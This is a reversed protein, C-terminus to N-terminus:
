KNLKQVASDLSKKDLAKPDKKNYEVDTPLTFEDAAFTPSTNLVTAVALLDTSQIKLIYKKNYVSIKMGNGVDYIDTNYGIINESGTIKKDGLFKEFEKFDVITEGTTKRSNYEQLDTKSAFKQGAAETINYVNNDLIYITNLNNMGMINTSIKQKIKNGNRLISMKGTMMGTLDYNIVFQGDDKSESTNEKKDTETKGQTDPKNDKGCSSFIFLVLLLSITYISNTRRSFVSNM